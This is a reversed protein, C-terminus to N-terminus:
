SFFSLSSTIRGNVNSRRRSQTKSFFRSFTDGPSFAARSDACAAASVNTSSIKGTLFEAIMRKQAASLPAGQEKMLGTELARVVNEPSMMKLAAPSPARTQGSTDHCRACSQMYIAAGDPDAALGALAALWALGFTKILHMEM